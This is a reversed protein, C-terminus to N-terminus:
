SAEEVLPFSAHVAFGGEPVPGARLHGGHLSVRERMGILGHGGIGSVQEPAGSDGDDLVDIALSNSAYRVKVTAATGGSHKFANTLAEQIIRYASVELTPPLPRSDGEITLTVALHGEGARAILDPLQALDPQPALEDDHGERRLFGLLRHLETVAHRSSAEISSLAKAAKEPQREMVRRAAGAQVGMVSVHHAVVDHLERAIRVREDLVARRANEERQRRLEVAQVSLQRERRRLSRIALGLLVPFALVAFNYALLVAQTLPFAEYSIAGSPFYLVRVIEGLLAGAVVGLAISSLRSRRRHAAASYLALLCPWVTLGTIDDIEFLEASAIYAAVVTAAVTIPFRRRFALPLTLALASVLVQWREPESYNPDQRLVEFSSYVAILTACTFALALFTDAATPHARLLARLREATQNLSSPELERTAAM